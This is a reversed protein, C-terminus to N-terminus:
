HGGSHYNDFIMENRNRKIMVCGTEGRKIFAEEQEAITLLQTMEDEIGVSGRNQISKNM